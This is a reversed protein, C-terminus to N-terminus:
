SEVTEEALEEDIAEEQPRAQTPDTDGPIKRGNQRALQEISEDEFVVATYRDSKNAPMNTEPNTYKGNPNDIFYEEVPVSEITGLVRAGPQVSDYIADGPSGMPGEEWLLRTREKANTLLGGPTEKQFRVVKYNRNDSSTRVKNGESNPVIQTVKLINQQNDM